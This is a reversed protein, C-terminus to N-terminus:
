TPRSFYCHLYTDRVTLRVEMCMNDVKLGLQSLIYEWLPTGLLVRSATSTLKFRDM